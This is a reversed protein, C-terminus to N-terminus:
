ACVCRSAGTMLDAFHGFTERFIMDRHEPIGEELKKQLYRCGHQDKCLGPIEGQLDELRTGAFRNVLFSLGEADAETEIGTWTPGDRGREDSLPLSFPAPYKCERDMEGRKHKAGGLGNMKGEGAPVRGNMGLGYRAGGHQYLATSGPAGGARGNAEFGYNEYRGSDLNYV